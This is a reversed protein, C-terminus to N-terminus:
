KNIEETINQDRTIIYLYFYRGLFYIFGLKWRYVITLIFLSFNVNSWCSTKDKKNSFAPFLKLARASAFSRLTEEGVIVFARGLNFYFARVFGGRCLQRRRLRKELRM